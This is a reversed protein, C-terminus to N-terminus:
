FSKQLIMHIFPIFSMKVYFVMMRFLLLMEYYNKHNFAVTSLM